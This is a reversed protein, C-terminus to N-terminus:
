ITNCVWFIPYLNKHCLEYLSQKRYWLDTTQIGGGELIEELKTYLSTLALLETGQFTTTACNTSRDSGFGSTRPEFGTM